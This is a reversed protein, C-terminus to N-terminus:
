CARARPSRAAMTLMQQEGGSLLGARRDLLPELAPFYELVRAVDAAGRRSGLRLNERVTLGFFLSRDEPM